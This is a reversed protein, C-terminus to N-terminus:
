NRMILLTLYPPASKLTIGTFTTRVSAPFLCGAKVQIGAEPYLDLRGSVGLFFRLRGRKALAKDLYLLSGKSEGIVKLKNVIELTQAEEEVQEDM